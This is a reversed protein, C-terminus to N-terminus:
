EFVGQFLLGTNSLYRKIIRDIKSRHGTETYESMDYTGSQGDNSYSVLPGGSGRVKEYQYMSEAVECCCLGLEGDFGATDKGNIYRDMEVSAKQAYYAFGSAIVPEKGLLYDTLYLADNAYSM